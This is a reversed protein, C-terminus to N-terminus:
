KNPQYNRMRNNLDRYEKNDGDFTVVKSVQSMEAITKALDRRFDSLIDEQILHSAPGDFEAAFGQKALEARRDELIKLYDSANM